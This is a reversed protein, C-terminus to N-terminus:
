IPCKGRAASRGVWRPLHDSAFRGARRLTRLAAARRVHWAGYRRNSEQFRWLDDAFGPGQAAVRERFLQTGYDYLQRDLTTREEIARLTDPPLDAQRPRHPTINRSLYYPTSWGCLRQILLLSADFEETLGVVGMQRSLNKKALELLDPTCQGFPVRDYLGSEGALQRTQGNDMEACYGTAVYDKLSLGGQQVRLRDPHNNKIGQRRDSLIHDRLVFYYHSIVRETPDRLMTYYTVPTSLYADIGYHQHGHFIQLADPHLQDWERVAQAAAQPNWQDKKFEAWRATHKSEIVSVLTKGATKPVHLFVFM